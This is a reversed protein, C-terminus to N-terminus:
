MNWPSDVSFGSPAGGMEHLEVLRRKIRVMHEKCVRVDTQYLLGWVASGYRDNSIHNRYLICHSPCVIRLMILVCQLVKYAAEWEKFNAPGHLPVRCPSGDAM